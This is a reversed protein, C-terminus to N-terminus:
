FFIIVISSWVRFKFVVKLHIVFITATVSIFVEISNMFVLAVAYNEESFEDNEIKQVTTGM